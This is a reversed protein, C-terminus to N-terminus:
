VAESPSGLKYALDHSEYCESLGCVGVRFHAILVCCFSVVCFITAFNLASNWGGKGWSSM